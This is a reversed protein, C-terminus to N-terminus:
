NEFESRRNYVWFSLLPVLVVSIYYWLPYGGLQWPEFTRSFASGFNDGLTLVELVNDTALRRQFLQPKLTNLAELGIAATARSFASEFDRGSGLATYLERTFHIADRDQIADEMAIVYGVKNAITQAQDVTYCANLIVLQLRTQQEFLNALADPKVLQAKGSDNEFYLGKRNGHGSFHLISPGHDDLARTIDQVRCSSKDHIEFADRLRTRRLADELERREQALRLRDLNKPDASVVLVVLPRQIEQFLRRLSPTGLDDPSLTNFIDWLVDHMVTLNPCRIGIEQLRQHAVNRVAPKLDETALRIGERLFCATEGILVFACHAPTALRKVYNLTNTVVTTVPRVPGALYPVAYSINNAQLRDNIENM